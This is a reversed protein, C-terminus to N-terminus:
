IKRFLKELPFRWKPIQIAEDTEDRYGIALLIVPELNEDLTLAERTSEKDFGSIPCSDIKLETCAALAFGLVVHINNEAWILLDVQPLGDLMKHVGAEYDHYVTERKEQDHDSLTEFMVNVWDSINKHANFLFLKDANLIRSMNLTGTKIKKRIDIDEIEVVEFPQVGQSTPALRIAARIKGLDEESVKKSKAFKKTAYRWNLNELFSM